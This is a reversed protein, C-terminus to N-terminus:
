EDSLTDMGAVSALVDPKESDLVTHLRLDFVQCVHDIVRKRCESEDVVMGLETALSTVARDQIGCPVIQDFFDLDTNVNFAFGHMTVWRSCRIGMACIKRESTGNGLWVGTRGDVRDAALGYDRCTDIIAQELFRLYKGIDTFIRELDLIPYGVLQGPGHFTIDGGRDTRFFTAGERELEESSALLHAIDGSKGLTYVPPHEVTLLVHPLDRPPQTRKAEILRKQIKRQLEWAEAYEMRGLHIAFGDAENM